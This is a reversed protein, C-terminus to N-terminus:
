VSIVRMYDKFNEVRDQLGRLAPNIRKTVSATDAFNQVYPKVRSNWYWLAIQAAIDPQEALEPKEELPLNLAKGARRYNERGTLQIFGRGHYKQGDGIKTNGLIKATQPNFKPDYKRFDLSGGKEKLRSFDWSEHACQAMFQALEPGKLGAKAATKQLLLENQPNNSIPNFSPQAAVQTAPASRNISAQALGTAGLAAGAGLGRLFGRRSLDEDVEDERFAIKNTQLRQQLTAISKDLKDNLGQYGDKYAYPIFMSVDTDSDITRTLLGRNEAKQKLKDLLQVKEIAFNLAKLKANLVSLPEKVEPEVQPQPEVIPAQPKKNLQPFRKEVDRKWAELEEAQKQALIEKAKLLADISKDDLSEIIFETARM